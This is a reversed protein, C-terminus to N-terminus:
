LGGAGADGAGADGAGGANEALEAGWLSDLLGLSESAKEGINGFIGILGVTILGAAIAYEVATLGEEDRLFKMIANM